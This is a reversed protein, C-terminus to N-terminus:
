KEMQALEKEIADLWAEREDGNLAERLTPEDESIALATEMEDALEVDDAGQDVRKGKQDLVEEVDITEEVDVVEEADVVAANTRSTHVRRRKGRGFEENDFQPLGELSNRRVPKRQPLTASNDQPNEPVEANNPAIEPEIPDNQVPQPNIEPQSPQPSNSITRIDNEGEILVEDNALAENENFYVDREITVRNKGPWYVRLGKSEADIGVYHCLEARAELKGVDLRKVWAKCGWPHVNSLDPKQGTAMEHPTKNNNLSRTPVRNRIWVHHNIAEAWLYKPLRSEDLMARAGDLLMCNAREAIGNSSPSDHTTLHRVTGANELHVSFISSMYEGGRDCRFIAIKGGRQVNVWAEYKKYHDFVESKHALFYIREEHSFLDMFLLYYHKGGLSKIPAPGWVDSVVKEGYSFYKSKSEKLFPKRAAKAKICSECFEAKSSMDLSIGTIMGKEVMRRLDEHNVHGMRQHLENISIQKDAVNATHLPRSPSKNDSIRYLGRVQPIRGIINSATTKIECIGGRILLSFGARDVCSVSILTFAMIPSYYVEKLMIRTSKNNGNPLMIQIDGKGLAHFTCGDAARIPEQNVFEQYNLFKSRDPSFHRSAGSDIIIGSHSSAAHAESQFDSTCTLATEDNPFISALMAFNDPEDKNASKNEAVNASAKKSKTIKKWWEPAQGAKGGGEAWCQDGTHGRRGCNTNSCLIDDKSSKNSKNSKGKGKDDKSKSTSAMMAANSKNITDEVEVSTAEETLHWIVDSATLKKGTQRATTSLTTFLNRFSPALSLSTRLYSVFSEDSVPANMEALRERLETMKGLHERMSEKETYRANQLQVLLNAEYLSGKDSHISAVKKWVSAADAENKIQLFTTKDITRYIIERVAAQAQDYLDIIEEHKKFEDDTLPALANPKYFSGNHEDLREPKRATGLVHRRYGKLTIYNLIRESYTAWNSSDSRLKPLSLVKNTSSAMDTIDDPGM